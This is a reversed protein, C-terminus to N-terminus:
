QAIEKEVTSVIYGKFEQNGIFVKVIPSVSAARQKPVAISSNLSSRKSPTVKVGGGFLATVLEEYGTPAGTVSDGVVGSQGEPIFGGTAHGQSVPGLTPVGASNLLGIPASNKTSLGVAAKMRNVMSEFATPIDTGVAKILKPFTDEILNGLAFEWKGTETNYTAMAKNVEYQQKISQAQVALSAEQNKMQEVWGARNLKISQEELEMSVRFYEKSKDLQQQQLAKNENFQKLELQHQQDQLKWAQKQFNMEKQKQDMTMNHETVQEKNTMEALKRERGTMFRSQESYMTQGFAFQRETMATSFQYQETAQARNLQTFREELGRNEMFQRTGLNIQTQQMQFGYQTQSRSLARQADELGWQGGGTSTFSEGGVSWSVKGTNFGFPSGTQPNITGAYAGLGVGTTFAKQQALGAYGIGVSAMSTNYSQLAQAMQGGAAGAQVNQGAQLAADAEAQSTMIKNTSFNFGYTMAGIVQAGYQGYQKQYFAQANAPTSTLPAFQGGGLAAGAKPGNGWINWAMQAGGINGMQLSTTGYPQGTVQGGAGGISPTYNTYAAFEAPLNAGWTTQLNQGKVNLGAGIMAGWVNRDGGYLRNTYGQAAAGAAQAILQDQQTYTKGIFDEVKPAPAKGGLAAQATWVQYQAQAVNYGTDSLSAWKANEEMLARANAQDQSETVMVNSRARGNAPMPYTRPTGTPVPLNNHGPLNAIRQIGLGQTQAEEPTMTVGGAAAGYMLTAASGAVSEATVKGLAGVGFQKGAGQGYAAATAAFIGQMNVGYAAYSGMQEVAKQNYADLKAPAYNTFFAGVSSAAETNLIWGRDQYVAALGSAVNVSGYQSILSAVSTNRNIAQYMNTLRRTETQQGVSQGKGYALQATIDATSNKLVLDGASYPLGGEAPTQVGSTTRFSAGAKYLRWATSQTDQGLASVQMGYSVAAAGLGIAAMPGLGLEGIGAMDAAWQTAGAVAVGSIAAQGFTRANPHQALWLNTATQMTAGGGALGMAIQARQQPGAYVSARGLQQGMVGQMQTQMQEAEQAGWGIGETAIGYISRLYMLGFGGLARRALRGLGSRKGEELGKVVGEEKGELAALREDGTTQDMLGAQQQSRIFSREAQIASLKSKADEEPLARNVRALLKKAQEKTTPVDETTFKKIEDSAKKVADNYDKHQQASMKVIDSQKQVIDGFGVLADKLSMLRSLEPSINQGEYKGSLVTKDNQNIWNGLQSVERLPQYIDNMVKEPIVGKKGLATSELMTQKLEPNTQFVRKVAAIQEATSAQPNGLAGENTLAIQLQALKPDGSLRQVANLANPNINKLEMLANNMGASQAGAYGMTGVRNRDNVWGQVSQIARPNVDPNRSAVTLASSAILMQKDTKALEKIKPILHQIKGLVEAGRPGTIARALNAGINQQDTMPDGSWLGMSGLVDQVANITDMPGSPEDSFHSYSSFAEDVVSRAMANSWVRKSNTDGSSAVGSALISGIESKKFRGWINNGTPGEYLNIFDDSNDPNDPPNRPGGGRRRGGGGGGSFGANLLADRAARTASHTGGSSRAIHNTMHNAAREGYRDVARNDVAANLRASVSTPDPYENGAAAALRADLNDGGSENGITAAFRIDTAGAMRRGEPSNAFTGYLPDIANPDQGASGGIAAALRAREEDRSLPRPAEEETENFPVGLQRMVGSLYTKEKSYPTYEYAHQLDAAPVNVGRHLLNLTASARMQNGWGMTQGWEQASKWAEAMYEPDKGLPDHELGTAKAYARAFYSSLAPLQYLSRVTAKATAAEEPISMDLPLYQGNAGKRQSRPMMEQLYQNVTYNWNEPGTAELKSQLERRQGPGTFAQALVEPSILRVNGNGIDVPQTMLSAIHGLTKFVKGTDSEDLRLRETQTEGHIGGSKINSGIVLEAGGEGMDFRAKALSGAWGAGAAEAGKLLKDLHPQYIAQMGAYMRTMEEDNYGASAMVPMYVSRVRHSVGMGIDNLVDSKAESGILSLPQM